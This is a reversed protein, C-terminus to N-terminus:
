DWRVVYSLTAGMEISVDTGGLGYAMMSADLSIAHVDGLELTTYVGAGLGFSLRDGGFSRDEFWQIALGGDAHVGVEITAFSGLDERFHVRVSPMALALRVNAGILSSYGAGGRLRLGISAWESLRGYFGLEPLVSQGMGGEQATFGMGILLSFRRARRGTFVGEDELREDARGEIPSDLSRAADDDPAAEMAPRVDQAHATSSALTLAALWALAIGTMTKM